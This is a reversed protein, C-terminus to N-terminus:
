ASKGLTAALTPALIAILVALLIIILCCQKKRSKRQYGEAIELESSAQDVHDKATAVRKEIIDLSEQQTEVLLSLDKFLEYVELVQKELRLIEEHRLEIDRVVDQVGEGGSLKKIVQQAQGEEVIKDIAEESLKNESDLIKLQRKTRTQLSQKFEFSVTNYENMDQRFRRTHTELFGSRIRNKASGPNKKEFEENQVKIEGLAKKIGKATNTTQSMIGDLESMIGRREVDTAKSERENLRQIADTNSRIREMDAKIPEYPRLADAIEPDRRVVDPETRQENKDLLPTKLNSNNAPPSGSASNLEGLRNIM